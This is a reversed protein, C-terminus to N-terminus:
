PRGCVFLFSGCTRTESDTGTPIDVLIRATPFAEYGEPCGCSNTQWNVVACRGDCPAQVNDVVQFSGGHLLQSKLATTSPNDAGSSQALAQMPGVMMLLAVVAVISVVLRMQISGVM